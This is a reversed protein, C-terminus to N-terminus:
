KKLGWEHVLKSLRPRKMGLLDAARSINGDSESLAREICEREIRKRVDYISGADLVRAYTREALTGESSSSAASAEARPALGAHEAFDRATISASASLLATTRLVNELERVNGPWAHQALLAVADPALSKREAGSERAIRELLHRGLEPLDGARERLAPVRVEIGSLRYFLDERFKGQLVLERLDRHTAAIVRVDARITQTGGVREFTREQLVRLLAVQMAPSIDGIEDLLITGGDALEFRGKKARDAGTFAGREHGFLESALLGEVLAGCHVRVFPRDRRSSARHLAEAVLEKGTGSEGLVLVTADSPGV